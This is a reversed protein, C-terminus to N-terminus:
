DNLKNEINLINRKIKIKKHTLLYLIFTIVEGKGDKAYYESDPVDVLKLLSSRLPGGVHGSVFLISM